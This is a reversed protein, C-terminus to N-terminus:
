NLLNSLKQVTEVRIGASGGPRRRPVNAGLPMRVRAEMASAASERVRSFFWFFLPRRGAVGAISDFPTGVPIRVGTDVTFPHHGLGRSSPSATSSSDFGAIGTRFLPPALRSRVASRRCAM